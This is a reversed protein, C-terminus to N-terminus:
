SCFCSTTRDKGAQSDQRWHLASTPLPEQWQGQARGTQTEARTDWDTVQPSQVHIEEAVQVPVQPLPTPINQVAAATQKLAGADSSKSLGTWSKGPKGQQGAKQHITYFVAPGLSKQTVASQLGYQTAWCM